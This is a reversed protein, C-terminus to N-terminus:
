QRLHLLVSAEMGRLTRMARMSSALPKIMPRPVGVAATGHILSGTILVQEPVGEQAQAVQGQAVQQQAQAVLAHALTLLSATGLLTALKSTTGNM